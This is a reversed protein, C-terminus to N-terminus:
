KTWRGEDMFTGVFGNHLDEGSSNPSIVVWVEQGEKSNITKRQKLAVVLGGQLCGLITMKSRGKALRDPTNALAHYLFASATATLKGNDTIKLFVKPVLEIRGNCYTISTRSKPGLLNTKPQKCSAKDVIVIPPQKLQADSLKTGTTEKMALVIIDWDYKVFSIAERDRATLKRPAPKAPVPVSKTTTTVKPELNAPAKTAPKPAAQRPVAVSNVGNDPPPAPDAVVPVIQGAGIGGQPAAQPANTNPATSAGITIMLTFALLISLAVLLRTRNTACRNFQPRTLKRLRDFTFM